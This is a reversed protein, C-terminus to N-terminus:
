SEVRLRVHNRQRIGPMDHGVVEDALDAALLLPPNPAILAGGGVREPSVVGGLSEHASSMEPQLKRLLGM